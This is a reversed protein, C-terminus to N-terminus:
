SILSKGSNKCSMMALLWDKPSFGVRRRSTVLLLDGHHIQPSRPHEPAYSGSHRETLPHPFRVLVQAVHGQSIFVARSM